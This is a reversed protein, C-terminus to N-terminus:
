RSTTTWAQHGIGYYNALLGGSAALQKLYPAPSYPGFTRDFGENELVILFVHQPKPVVRVARAARANAPSAAAFALMALAAMGAAAGGDLWRFKKM